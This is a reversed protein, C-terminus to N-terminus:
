RAVTINGSCNRLLTCTRYGSSNTVSTDHAPEHQTRGSAAIGTHSGVCCSLDFLAHVDSFFQSCLVKDKPSTSLAVIGYNVRVNFLFQIVHSGEEFHYYTLSLM